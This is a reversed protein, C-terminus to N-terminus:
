HSLGARNHGLRKDSLCKLEPTQSAEGHSQHFSGHPDLGVM